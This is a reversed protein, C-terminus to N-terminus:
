EKQEQARNRASKKAHNCHMEANKRSNVDSFIDARFKIGFPLTQLPSALLFRHIVFAWKNRRLYCFVM